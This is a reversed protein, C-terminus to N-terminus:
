GAGSPTRVTGRQGVGGFIQFALAGLGIDLRVLEPRLPVLEVGLGPGLGLLARRQQILEVGLARLGLVVPMVPVLEVVLDAFRFAEPLLPVVLELLTRVLDGFQLAVTRGIGPGDRDPTEALLKALELEAVHGGGEGALLLLPQDLLHLPELGRDAVLVGLETLVRGNSWARAATM